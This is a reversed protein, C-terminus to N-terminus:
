KKQQIFFFNNLKKILSYKPQYFFIGNENNKNIGRLFIYYIGGFNKKFKYNKLKLKLFRHLALSYLYYQIYYKKKIIEKKLYKKQYFQNNEGLFNSKYDIVYYKKNFKFILDISGTLIKNKINLKKKFNTNINKYKTNLLSEILYININKKLPLSFKFEKIYNKKNLNYIKIKFTNLPKLLILNIWKKIIPLWKEKLKNKKLYKLILFNNIKKFNINELIKHLFIGYKKGKPFSYKTLKTKKNLIIKNEKKKIINKKKLIEKCIKTYNTNEEIKFTRTFYNKHIYKKKKVTKKIYDPILNKDHININKNLIIKKIEHTFEQINMKKGKQLIYGLGSHHFNTKNCIKKINVFPSVGISCHFISRTIAVYLLRIEESLKEEEALKIEKIQKKINILINFKKRDHFILKKSFSFNSIFPIWIIPYQLGKSKYITTINICNKNNYILKQYDNEYNQDDQFIKKKLWELLFFLNKKLISKKELIEGLYILNSICNKNKKYFFYKEYLTSKYIINKILNLIGKKKWIYLFKSFINKLKSLKNQKKKLQILTYFNKSIISTTIARNFYYENSYNLISQLIYFIEKIINKKFISKKYSTYYSDINKKKLQKKLIQYEKFNKVLICIDQIKLIKKSNETKLIAKKNKIKSILYYINESCKKSIWDNYHNIKKDKNEHLWFTIAPQEKKDIIFKKKASNESSLISRYKIKKFIFSHKIRNFLLNISDILKKSSRWNKKLTYLNSIKFTNKLYFFIDAGRFNYISQKPDGILILSSKKKNQYIKKFIDYQQHDTDQFEDIFAIPFKNEIFKSLNKKNKLFLLMSHILNDFCFKKKKIEKLIKPIKKIAYILINEKLSFNTKLFKKIIKLFLFDKNQFKHCNLEIKKKTFHKLEQPFNYNKTKKLTWKTIKKIWRSTNKNNYIRKNFKKESFKKKLKVKIKNWKKKFINIKKINENHKIYINKIKKKNKFFIKSKINLFQIIELLLQDPHKWYQFIINSIEKNLSYFFKRWFTYVSKKYLIEEHYKKKINSIDDHFNKIKLIYKCFGHITYISSNHIDIYAKKLLLSAKEYNKINKFLKKFYVNKTKKSLCDVYCHYINQSIRNQIEITANKTYTIILIEKVLYKRKTNIGLLLRLYLLIITFTKGTGASAEIIKIGKLPILFINNLINM